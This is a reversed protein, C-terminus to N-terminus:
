SKTQDAYFQIPSIVFIECISKVWLFRWSYPQTPTPPTSATVNRQSVHSLEIIQNFNKSKKSIDKFPIYFLKQRLINM